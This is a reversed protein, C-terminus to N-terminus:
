DWVQDYKKWVKAPKGNFRKKDFPSYFVLFDQYLSANWWLSSAWYKKDFVEEKMIRPTLLPWERWEDDETGFFELDEYKDSHDILDCVPEFIVNSYCIGNIHPREIEKKSIDSSYVREMYRTVKNTHEDFFMLRFCWDCKWIEISKNIEELSFFAVSQNDDEFVDYPVFEYMYEIDECSSSITQGCPCKLKAM